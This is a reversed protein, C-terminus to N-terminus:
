ELYGSDQICHFQLLSFDKSTSVNGYFSAFIPLLHNLILRNTNSQLWRMDLGTELPKTEATRETGTPVRVM